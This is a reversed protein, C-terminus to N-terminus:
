GIATSCQSTAKTVEWAGSSQGTQETSRTSPVSMTAASSTTVKPTRKSAISIASANTLGTRTCVYHLFDRLYDPHEVGLCSEDVPIYDLSRWEFDVNKTAVDTVQFVAEKIIRSRLELEVPSDCVHPLSREIIAAQIVRTGNDIIEFDHPDLQMQDDSSKFREVITYNSDMIMNECDKLDYVEQVSAYALHTNERYM